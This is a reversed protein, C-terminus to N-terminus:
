RISRSLVVKGKKDILGWQGDDIRVVAFGESFTRAEQFQPEIVTKGFKDIFGAKRDDSLFPALGEGYASSGHCNVNTFAADGKKDVYKGQYVGNSLTLVLA